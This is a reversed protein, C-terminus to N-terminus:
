SRLCWVRFDYKVHDGPCDSQLKLVCRKCIWSLVLAINCFDQFLLDVNSTCYCYPLFLPHPTPGLLWWGPEWCRLISSAM